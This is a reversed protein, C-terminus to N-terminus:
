AKTSMNKYYMYCQYYNMNTNLSFDYMLIVFKKAFLYLIHTPFYTLLVQQVQYHMEFLNNRQEFWTHENVSMTNGKILHPSIYNNDGHKNNCETVACDGTWCM